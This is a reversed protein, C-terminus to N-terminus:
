SFEVLRVFTDLVQNWRVKIQKANNLRASSSFSASVFSDKEIAAVSSALDHDLVALSPNAQQSAATVPEASNSQRLKEDALASFLLVM